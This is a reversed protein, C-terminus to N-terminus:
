GEEGSRSGTYERCIEGDEFMTVDEGSGRGSGSQSARVYTGYARRASDKNQGEYVTGINGVVVEYKAM